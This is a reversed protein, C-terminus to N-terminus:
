IGLIQKVNVRHSRYVVYEDGNGGTAHVSTCGYSRVLHGDLHPMSTRTELMPGLWVDAIILADDGSGDHQSKRRADAETKAFYIGGGYMGHTGPNMVGSKRIAQAATRSTAHYLTM